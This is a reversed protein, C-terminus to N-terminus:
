QGASVNRKRRKGTGRGREAAEGRALRAVFAKLDSAAVLTRTGVKLVPIEGRSLSVHLNIRDRITQNPAIALEREIRKFTDPTLWQIRPRKKLPM